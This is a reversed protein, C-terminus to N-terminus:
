VVVLVPRREFDAFTIIEQGQITVLRYLFINDGPELVALDNEFRVVEGEKEGSTLVARVEQVQTTAGTGAVDREYEEVVQLVEASVREELEQHLEQAQGVNPLVGLIFFGISFFLNRWM